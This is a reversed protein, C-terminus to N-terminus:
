NNTRIEDAGFHLVFLQSVPPSGLDALFSFYLAQVFQLFREKCGNGNQLDVYPGFPCNVPAEKPSGKTPGMNFQVVPNIVTSAAKRHLNCSAGQVCVVEGLGKM